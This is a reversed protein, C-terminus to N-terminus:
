GRRIRKLQLILCILFTMLAMAAWEFVYLLHTASPVVTSFAKIPYTREPNLEGTSVKQTNDNLYFIEERSKSNLVLAEEINKPDTSSMMEIHIPLLKYPFQKEIQKIDIRLWADIWENDGGAPPDKPAISWRPTESLKVLGVFETPINKQFQKRKEKSQVSLPIFGRNVLLYKNNEALRFPTIVHVGPGDGEDKRNRKVIEHQFDWTGRVLVRRHLLAPPNLDDSLLPNLETVPLHLRKDLEELLEEKVLYREWQWYSLRLMGVILLLAIVSIKWSFRFSNM